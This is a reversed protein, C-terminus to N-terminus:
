TNLGLTFTNHSHSLYAHLFIEEIYAERAEACRGLLVDLEQWEADQIREEVLKGTLEHAREAFRLNTKVTAKM